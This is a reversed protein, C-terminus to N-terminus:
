RAASTQRESWRGMGVLELMLPEFTVRVFGRRLEPTETDSIRANGIGQAECLLFLPKTLM